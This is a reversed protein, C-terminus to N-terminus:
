RGCDASSVTVTALEQGDKDRYRFRITTGTSLMPRLATSRCVAQRVHASLRWRLTEMTMASLRAAHMNTLTYEYTFLAGPGVGAGDLRTIHDVMRPSSANVGDAAQTLEQQLVPGPIHAATYAAQTHRTYLGLALLTTVGLVYTSATAWTRGGSGSLVFVQSSCFRDWISVAGAAARRYSVILAILSVLPLGLGLGFVYVGFNRSLYAAAGLPRRGDEALVKIGAIAKGPTNGLAWHILADMALAFPLLILVIIWGVHKTAGLQASLGPRLVGIVVAVLFTGITVDLSRAWYRRWPPAPAALTAGAPLAADAELATGAPAAAMWRPADPVAQILPPRPSSACPAAARLGLVGPLAIAETWGSLGERWLQTDATIQGTGVLARLADEGVPGIELEGRRVYWSM